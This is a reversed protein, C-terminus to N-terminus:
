VDQRAVDTILVSKIADGLIMRGTNFLRERLIDM